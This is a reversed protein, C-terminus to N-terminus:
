VTYIVFKVFFLHMIRIEVAVKLPSNETSGDM